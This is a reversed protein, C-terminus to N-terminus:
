QQNNHFPAIKSGEGGEMKKAATKRSLSSLVKALAIVDSTHRMCEKVELNKKSRKRDFVGILLLTTERTLLLIINKM